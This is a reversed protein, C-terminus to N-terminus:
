VYKPAHRGTKCTPLKMFDDWDYTETKCCSWFKKLDHFIPQGDHFHCADDANTEPEYEKLCGKNTCKHLGKPTVFVQKAPETKALEEELKKKKAEEEKNFDDITRVKITAQDKDIAKQANSVTSSKFFQDQNTANANPDEDSHPGQACPPLREFEDWDYAKQNCCTWGKKLDHFMPKGPHYKCATDNNESDCYKLRCGHRKCTKTVEAM